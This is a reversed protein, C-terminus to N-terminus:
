WGLMQREVPKRAADPVIIVRKGILERQAFEPMEEPDWLTVSPVSFVTAMRQERLIASLISDAKLCGEIGYFIEHAGNLLISAWPHIDLRKANNDNPDPRRTIRSFQRPERQPHV